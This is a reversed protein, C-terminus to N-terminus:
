VKIVHFARSNNCKWVCMARSLTCAGKPKEPGFVLVSGQVKKLVAKDQSFVVVLGAMWVLFSDVQSQSEPKAAM